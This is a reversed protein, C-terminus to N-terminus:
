RVNHTEQHPQEAYALEDSTNKSLDAKLFSENEPMSLHFDTMTEMRLRLPGTSCALLHGGHQRDNSLFHFHYGPISFASSFGPSWIGVLTGEMENFEFEAQAKAVDILRGHGGNPPSVARSRLQHFKGDLRIAHFINNSTRHEDCRATLADLSESSEIALDVHPAFQTVVAFPAGADATAESVKGNGQVRYVHGDLIVMEGDLNEFTGLGFDGHRLIMESSVVASSLGVVLAGSTSVQFLTHVPHNLYQSLATTVIDSVSKNDGTSRTLAELLSAPINCNLLPM